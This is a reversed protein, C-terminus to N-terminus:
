EKFYNVETGIEERVSFPVKLANINMISDIYYRHYLETGIYPFEHYTHANMKKIISLQENNMEPFENRIRETNPEMFSIYLLELYTHDQLKTYDIETHLTKRYNSLKNQLQQQLLGFEENSMMSPVAVNEKFLPQIMLEHCWICKSPKGAEGHSQPSSPILNGQGNYVAFRLQGNPMIDMTEYAQPDFTSEQLSGFGEVAVFATNLIKKNAKIRILRDHHSVMSKTVGFNKADGMKYQTNFETLTNYVGTIKYYHWSSHLTLVFFRSLDISNNKRYSDTKKISDCIVALAQKANESFGLEDIKIEFLSSDKTLIAKDYCGKPLHAGLFSFSWLMGTRVNGYSEKPYAKNWKLRISIKSTLENSNGDSSQFVIAAFLIFVIILVAKSNNGLRKRKYTFM